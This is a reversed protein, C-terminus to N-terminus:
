VSGPLCLLFLSDSVTSFRDYESMRISCPVSVFRDWIFVAYSRAKNRCTQFVCVNPFFIIDM